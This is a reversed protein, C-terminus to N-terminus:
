LVVYQNGKSCNLSAPLYQLNTEVHLGSVLRGKLPIVHDVHHEKPCNLYIEKIKDLDAWIALQKTKRTRYMKARYTDYALNKKRWKEVALRYKSPDAQRLLKAYFNVYEKNKQM